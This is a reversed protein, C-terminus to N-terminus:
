EVSKRDRQFSKCDRLVDDTGGIELHSGDQLVLTFIPKEVGLQLWRSVPVGFVNSLRALIAGRDGGSATQPTVNADPVETAPNQKPGVPAADVREEARRAEAERQGAVQHDVAPDGNLARVAADRSADGRAKALTLILYKRNEVMKALKDPEWRRRHSIILNAIEQDTWLAQVCYSALSLEQESNSSFEKRHDWIRRFEPSNARLAELKEIPPNATLDVVLDAVAAHGNVGAAALLPLDSSAFQEFDAVDYRPWSALDAYALDVEVPRGYRYN